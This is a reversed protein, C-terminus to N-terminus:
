SPLHKRWAFVNRKKACNKSVSKSLKLLSVCSTTNLNFAHIFVVLLSCEPTKFFLCTYNYEANSVSNALVCQAPSICPRLWSKVNPPVSASRRLHSFRPALPESLPPSQPFPTGRELRSPPRHTRRSSGWHPGPRLGPRWRMKPM